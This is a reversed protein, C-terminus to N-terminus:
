FMALFENLRSTLNRARAVGIGEIETLNHDFLDHVRSFNNRLLINETAKDLCLSQLPVDGCMMKMTHRYNDYSRSLDESIKKLRMDYEFNLNVEEIRQNLDQNDIM